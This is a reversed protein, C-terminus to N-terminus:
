SQELNKHMKHLFYTRVAMIHKGAFRVLPLLLKYIHTNELCIDYPQLKLAMGCTNAYIVLVFTIADFILAVYMPIAIACMICLKLASMVTEPGTIEKRCITFCALSALVIFVIVNITRLLAIGEKTQRLDILKNAGDIIANSKKKQM